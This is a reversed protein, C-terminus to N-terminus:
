PLAVTSVMAPGTTRKLAVSLTPPLKSIGQAKVNFHAVCRTKLVYKAIIASKGEGPDGVIFFYGSVEKNIFSKIKRFVFERGVFGRTLEKLRIENPYFTNV